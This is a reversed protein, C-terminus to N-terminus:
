TPQSAPQSVFSGGAHEIHRDYIAGGSGLEIVHEQRIVEKPIDEIRTCKQVRRWAVMRGNFPRHLPRRGELNEM